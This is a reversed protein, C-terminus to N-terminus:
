LSWLGLAPNPIYYVEEGGVTNWGERLKASEWKKAAEAYPMYNFGVQKVEAETLHQACYTVTFHGDPSGHILHAAASLNAQLDAYQPDTSKVMELVKKRGCYGYKRILVDNDPDEGFKRVGPALVYLEGGEAMAMRSRYVAKNGVWTTKFEEPDLFAAAKKIPKDVRTINKKQSLSVAKEFLSRDRGIYLGILTSEGQVEAIVTLIYILPVKALFQEEGYDFVKRVPSFDQGLLREAGWFAGLMHSSSIM